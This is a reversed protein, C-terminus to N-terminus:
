DPNNKKSEFTTDLVERIRRARKEGLSEVERLEEVSASFVNAPSGFHALLVKALRTGIGPLAAVLFKQQEDVIWPKNPHVQHTKESTNSVRRAIAQLVGATDAPTTTRLVPIHFSFIITALMGRISAASIRRQAYIDETGEIILLPKFSSRLERLQALLRGDIISDVFDRVNKFEVIVDDGIRYDGIPLQELSLKVNAALLSKMVGSGKERYDVTITLSDEKDDEENQFSSLSTNTQSNTSEQSSFSPHFSRKLSDLHRYMRKEKHHASWRYAEDRTGSAILMFVQGTAHRGTRGRRQVSRIASPVPEYFIVADVAPIDLGEEAVSTAILVQFEGARFRDIMEKQKKQSLGTTGKKAQGVFIEASAVGALVEKIVLATDRFQTFIILKVKESDILRETVLAKLKAIKPHEYSKELLRQALVHAAKFDIDTVLNQVAKTKSTRSLSVLQDLYKVLSNVTQSECLELAHQLKLSEALLSISKLLEYDREGHSMRAHLAGQLKLLQGKSLQSPDGSLYGLQKAENLKRDHARQLYLRVASLEASLDVKIFRMDLDQVYERVDTDATSRLEIREIFLNDCVEKISEEDAGPSATLALIRPHTATDFYNKALFVYAYDGSARHAEDFVLLSVDALNLRRSMVDNELGQPTSFIIKANEWLEVRKKPSVHGTFVALEDEALTFLSKFTEFHQQVLPKTPALLVVKGGREELRHSSLMAAIATKGLGTPLVVLTNNGAATAFISEQYKRAVFGPKFLSMNIHHSAIVIYLSVPRM